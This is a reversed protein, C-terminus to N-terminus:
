STHKWNDDWYRQGLRKWSRRLRRKWLVSALPGCRSCYKRRGPSIPREKCASCVVLRVEQHIVTLTLRTTTRTRQKLFYFNAEYRPAFKRTQRGQHVMM